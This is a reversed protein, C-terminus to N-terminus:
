VIPGIEWEWLEQPLRPGRRKGALIATLLSAGYLRMVRTTDGKVMVLNRNDSSFKVTNYACSTVAEYVCSPHPIAILDAQTGTSLDLVIICRKCDTMGFCAAYRGNPSVAIPTGVNGTMGRWIVHTADTRIDHLVIDGYLTTVVVTDNCTPLCVCSVATNISALRVGLNDDLDMRSYDVRALYSTATIGVLTDGNRSFSVCQLGIDFDFEYMHNKHPFLLYMSGNITNVVIDGTLLHVDACAIDALLTRYVHAGTSINWVNVSGFWTVVTLHAGDPSLWCANYSNRRCSDMSATIEFTRTTTGNCQVEAYYKFRQTASRCSVTVVLGDGSACACLTGSM